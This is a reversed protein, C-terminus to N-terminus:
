SNRISHGVGNFLQKYCKCPAFGLATSHHPTAVPLPLWPLTVAHILVVQRAFATQALDLDDPVLELNELIIEQYGITLVM